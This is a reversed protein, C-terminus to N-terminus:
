RKITYKQIITLYMYLAIISIFYNPISLFNQNLVNLLLQTVNIMVYQM